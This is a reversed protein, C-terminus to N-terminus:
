QIRLCVAQVKFCVGCGPSGGADMKCSNGAYIIDDPANSHHNDGSGSDIPNWATKYGCGTLSYGAPCTAFVFGPVFNCSPHSPSGGCSEVSDVLVRDIVPVGGSPQTVSCGTVTKSNSPGSTLLRLPIVVPAVAPVADFDIVLNATFVTGAATCPPTVCSLNQVMINKAKLRPSLPSALAIGNASILPVAGAVNRSPIEPFPSFNASALNAPDFTVPPANAVMYTCVASGNLTTKLVREVDLSALKDSLQAGLQQQSTMVTMFAVLGISLIGIVLMVEILTM